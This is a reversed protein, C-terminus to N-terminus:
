GAFGGGDGAMHAIGGAVVTASFAAVTAGWNGTTSITAGANPTGTGTVVRTLLAVSRDSTTALSTKTQASINFSNTPLSFDVANRAALAGVWLQNADTTTSTAGSAPTTSSGIAGVTRDIGDGIGTWEEGAISIATSSQITVTVTASASAYVRGIFLTGWVSNAAVIGIQTWAINGSTIVPMNGNTGVSLFIVNGATPTSDFVINLTSATGAGTNATKNQVASIAM